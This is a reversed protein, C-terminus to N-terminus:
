CIPLYSILFLKSTHPQTLFQPNLLSYFGFHDGVLVCLPLPAISELDRFASCSHHISTITINFSIQDGSFRWAPRSELIPPQLILAWITIQAQRYMFLSHYIFIRGGIYGYEKYNCDWVRILHCVPWSM